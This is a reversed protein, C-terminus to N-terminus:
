WNREADCIEKMMYPMVELLGEGRAFEVQVRFCFGKEVGTDIEIYCRRQLATEHSRLM